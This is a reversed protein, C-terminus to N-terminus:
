TPFRFLVREGRRARWSNTSRALDWCGQLVWGWSRAFSETVEWGDADWPDRWVIIGTQEPHVRGHGKMDLCLQLEDYSEGALILNDRMQPIPLLDLWPHHPITRQIATARLSPPLYEDDDHYHYYGQEAALPWPGSMKFPSIADDDDLQESALGLVAMNQVLAKIFNFQILHLLLDSRPSPSSPTYSQTYVLSEFHQLLYKTKTSERGLIHAEGIAAVELLPLATTMRDATNNSQTTNLLQQSTEVLPLTVEQPGEEEEEVEASSRSTTNSNLQPSAKILKRRLRLARQNLRNQVKRRQKRDGIGSWDDQPLGSFRQSFRQLRIGTTAADPQADADSADDNQPAMISPPQDARSSSM